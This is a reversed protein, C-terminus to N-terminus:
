LSGSLQAGQNFGFGGIIANVIPVTGRSNLHDDDFYLPVGDKQAFCVQLREDCLFEEPNVFHIDDQKLVQVIKEHFFKHREKYVDYRTTIDKPVVGKNLLSKFNFSPVDWGVEPVPSIVTLRRSSARLDKLYNGIVTQFDEPLSSQKGNVFAYNPREEVAQVREVGGDQNDFHPEELYGQIPALRLGWRASVVTSTNNERIFSLVLENTRKCEDLQDIHAQSQVLGPVVHCNWNIAYVGKKGMTKMQEHLNGVLMNAHSDGILVMEVDSDLAGFECLQVGDANPLTKKNPCVNIVGDSEPEIMSLVSEEYRFVAGNSIYAFAGYALLLGMCFGCISFVRTNPMVDKRRFPSEVFHLSFYALAVSIAILVLYTVLDPESILRIKAFAFIPQHWLYLSYSILGIWVFVKLSLFSGIVNGKSYLVILSTGLVAPVAWWAPFMLQDHMFIVSLVILVLGLGSLLSAPTGNVKSIIPSNFSILSACLAGALLEWARFLIIYFVMKQNDSIFYAALMLSLALSVVFFPTLFSSRITMIALLLPPFLIYFQEEVSLSWTHLLPNLEAALDFYNTSQFFYINSIFTFTSILSKGYNELQTPTLWFFSVLSSVFVVFILAPMIRRIRRVYFSKISITNSRDYEKILLSTILYGSIVFFIDVGIFGGKLFEFGAHYLVVPVVAFARLGDIERRYEM